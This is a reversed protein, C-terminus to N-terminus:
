HDIRAKEQIFNKLFAEAYKTGLKRQSRSDFHVSDPGFTLDGTEIVAIRKDKLAVQRLKHNIAENKNTKILTGIEGVLIPVTVDGIAERFKSFLETLNEEYQPIGEDTADSEGQHWLVGKIEGYKKALRVKEEFNSYLNVGRFYENQLWQKSSSGGVATPVLLVSISDPLDRILRKAFSLGCDLGAMSPEYFHLPEKAYILYGEKSISYIRKNPVTDPPEVLGRGAMNSQGAMVFVWVKPITPINGINDPGLSFVSKGLELQVQLFLFFLFQKTM